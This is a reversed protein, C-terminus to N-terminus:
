GLFWFIESVLSLSEFESFAKPFTYEKNQTESDVSLRCRGSRVIDSKKAVIKQKHHAKKFKNCNCIVYLLKSKVLTYIDLKLNDWIWSVM